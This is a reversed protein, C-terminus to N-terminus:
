SIWAGIGMGLFFGFMWIALCWLAIGLASPKPTYDENKNYM